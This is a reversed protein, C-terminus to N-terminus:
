QDSMRAKCPLFPPSHSSMGRCCATVTKPPSSGQVNISSCVTNELSPTLFSLWFSFLQALLFPFFYRKPESYGSNVEPQLYWQRSRVLTSSATLEMPNERERGAETQEREAFLQVLCISFGMQTSCCSCLLANPHLNARSGPAPVARTVGLVVGARSCSRSGVLASASLASSGKPLQQRMLEGNVILLLLMHHM